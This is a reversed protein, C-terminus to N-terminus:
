AVATPGPFSLLGTILSILEETKSHGSSDYVNVTGVKCNIDSVTVWHNACVNLIQVFGQTSAPVSSLFALSATAYLGGVHPHQAQLLAQSHDISVDDLWCCPSLVTARLVEM